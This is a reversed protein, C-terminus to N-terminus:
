LTYFSITIMSSVLGILVQIQAGFRSFSRDGIFYYLPEESPGQATLAYLAVEGAQTLNETPGDVGDPTPSM